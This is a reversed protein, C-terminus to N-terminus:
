FSRPTLRTLHLYFLFCGLLCLFLAWIPYNFLFMLITHVWWVLMAIWRSCSAGGNLPFNENYTDKDANLLHHTPFFSILLPNKRGLEGIKMRMSYFQRPKADFFGFLLLIWLVFPWCSSARTSASVWLSKIRQLAFWEGEWFFRWFFRIFRMFLLGTWDLGWYIMKM